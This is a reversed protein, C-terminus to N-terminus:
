KLRQHIFNRLAEGRLQKAVIRNHEDLVFIAPVGDVHYSKVVESKWGKLDSVHLWALGDKEIAKIWASKNKDLSISMIVLGKDKFDKYLSVMYPNELRCPGCWSAWFDIIKVKGQLEYLSLTDGQPTPLVFNPAQADIELQQLLIIKKHVARGPSMERAEVSLRNYCSKLQELNMQEIGQTMIHAAFLNQRNKYILKDLKAQAKGRVERMAEKIEAASKLHRKMQAEKLKAQWTAIEQNVQTVLKQYINFQEQLYGGVIRSVGSKHLEMRYPMETDLLFTFGGDYGVLRLLAVTPEDLQGHLHFIGNVIAGKTLTDVGNERYALLLIEGDSLEPTEGTIQFSKKEEHLEPFLFFCISLILITKM